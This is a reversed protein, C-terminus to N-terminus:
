EGTGCTLIALAKVYRKRLRRQEDEALKGIRSELLNDELDAIKVRKAIIDGKLRLIYPGYAEGKRRSLKDVAAAIRPGFQVALAEVTIGCDEVVDHMLAAILVNESSGPLVSMAVRIVHLIYPKGQKDV